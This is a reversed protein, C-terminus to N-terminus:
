LISLFLIVELRIMMSVIEYTGYDIGGNVVNYATPWAQQDWNPECMSVVVIPPMPVNGQQLVDDFAEIIGPASKSDAPDYTGTVRTLLRDVTAVQDCLIRLADCPDGYGGASAANPDHWVARMATMGDAVGEELPAADYFENGPSLSRAGAYNWTRRLADIQPTDPAVVRPSVPRFEALRRTLAAHIRPSHWVFQFFTSLWCSTSPPNGFMSAWQNIEGGAIRVLDRSPAPNESRGRLQTNTKTAAGPVRTPKLKKSRPPGPHRESRSRSCQLSDVAGGVILELRDGVSMDFTVVFSHGSKLSPWDVIGVGDDKVFVNAHVDSIRWRQFHEPLLPAAASGATHPRTLRAHIAAGDPDYEISLTCGEYTSGPAGPPTPDVSWYGTLAGAFRSVSADYAERSPQRHLPPAASLHFPTQALAEAIRRDDAEQEARLSAAIAAQMASDETTAPAAPPPAAAAAAAVVEAVQTRARRHRENFGFRWAENVIASTLRSRVPHALLVTYRQVWEDFYQEETMGEVANWKAGSQGSTLWVTVDDCSTSQIFTRVFTPCPITQIGNGLVYMHWLKTKLTAAPPRAGGYTWPAGLREFDALLICSFYHVYRPRFQSADSPSNSYHCLVHYLEPNTRTDLQRVLDDLQKGIHRALAAPQDVVPGLRGM